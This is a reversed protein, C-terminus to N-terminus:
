RSRVDSGASPVRGIASLALERNTVIESHRAPPITFERDLLALLEPMAVPRSFYYSQVASCGMARLLQVQDLDEAGEAVTRLHLDDALQLIMRVLRAAEPSTVIHDIFSKDIKLVDVPMDSLSGLSSYGTGFDDIAIRVGMSRLERLVGTRGVIDDVYLSETVELTLRAPDLEADRLATQVTAVFSPESLQQPSVNVSLRLPEGDRREWTRFERCARRL